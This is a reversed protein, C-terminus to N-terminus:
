LVPTRLGSPQPVFTRSPHGPDFFQPLSSSVMYVPRPGETAINTGSASNGPQPLGSPYVFLPTAVYAPTFVGPPNQSGHSDTSLPGEHTPSRSGGGTGGSGGGPPQHSFILNASSGLIFQLPQPPPQQPTCQQSPLLGTTSPGALLDLPRNNRPTYWSVPQKAQRQRSYRRRSPSQGPVYAESIDRPAIWPLGNLNRFFRRVQALQSAISEEPPPRPPPEMKAFDASPRPEALIPTSIAIPDSINPEFGRSSISTNLDSHTQPADSSHSQDHEFSHEDVASLMLRQPSVSAARTPTELREVTPIDDSNTKPIPSLPSHYHSITTRGTDMIGTAGQRGPRGPHDKLRSRSMVKPLRRLGSVFGGVFSKKESRGNMEGMAVDSFGYGRGHDMADCEDRADDVTVNFYDVESDSTPAPLVPTPTRVPQFAPPPIYRPTQPTHTHTSPVQSHSTSIWTVDRVRPQTQSSNRSYRDRSVEGLFDRGGSQRTFSTDIRIDAKSNPQSYNYDLFESM